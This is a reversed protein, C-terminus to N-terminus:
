SSRRPRPGLDEAMQTFAPLYADTALPAIAALVALSLLLKAGFTMRLSAPPGAPDSAM